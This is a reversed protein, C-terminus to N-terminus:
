SVSSPARPEAATRWLFQWAQTLESAPQFRASSLASQASLLPHRELIAVPSYLKQPGSEVDLRRSLRRASQELSRVSTSSECKGCQDSSLAASTRSHPVRNVRESLCDIGAALWLVPILWVMTTKVRAM